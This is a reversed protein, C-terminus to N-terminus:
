GNNDLNEQSTGWAQWEKGATHPTTVTMEGCLQSPSCWPVTVAVAPIKRCKISFKRAGAFCQRNTNCRGHIYQLVNKWCSVLRPVVSAIEPGGGTEWLCHLMAVSLKVAASPLAQTECSSLHVTQTPPLQSVTHSLHPVTHTTQANAPPPTKIPQLRYCALVIIPTYITHATEAECLVNL